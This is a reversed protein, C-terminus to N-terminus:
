ISNRGKYVGSDYLTEIRGTYTLKGRTLSSITARATKNSSIDMTVDYIGIDSTVSFRIYFTLHKEDKVIKLGSIRGEATVGGVGNLGMRSNSGTQLVASLSDVMIFNIGSIVPVRDGYQNELYDAELVFSKNMLMTDIVQFDFYQREKRAAKQEERSLKTDQSNSHVSILLLSITLILRELSIISKKM